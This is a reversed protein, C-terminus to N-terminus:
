SSSKYAGFLIDIEGPPTKPDIQGQAIVGM